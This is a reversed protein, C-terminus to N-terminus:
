AHVKPGFLHTHILHFAKKMLGDYGHCVGQLPSCVFVFHSCIHAVKRLVEALFHEVLLANEAMTESILYLNLVTKIQVIAGVRM